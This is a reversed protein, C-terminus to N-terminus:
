PLCPFPVFPDRSLWYCDFSLHCDFSFNSFDEWGLYTCRWLVCLPSGIKDRVVVVIDLRLIMLVGNDIVFGNWSGYGLAISNRARSFRDSAKFHSFRLHVCIPASSRSARLSVSPVGHGLSGRFSERDDGHQANWGM